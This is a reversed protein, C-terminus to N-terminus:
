VRIMAGEDFPKNEITKKDRKYWIKRLRYALVFNSSDEIINERRLVIPTRSNTWIGICWIQNVRYLHAPADCLAISGHTSIIRGAAHQRLIWRLSQHRRGQQAAARCDERPRLGMGNATRQRLIWRPRQHRCGQQAATRCDERAEMHLRRYHTATSEVKPMSTPVTSHALVHSALCWGGCKLHISLASATLRSYATLLFSM